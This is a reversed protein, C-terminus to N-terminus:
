KKTNSEAAREVGTGDFVPIFSQDSSEKQQIYGDEIGLAEMYAEAEEYEEDTIRRNIEPFEEARGHPTYQRMLSFLVDGKRFTEAVYELVGKTNKMQGPLILHRILVGKKLIGDAGIEYPGTQRFMQEIAPMAKEFYDPASSYREAAAADSYKLDPLWCQIKKRLFAVTHISEYGGCNYVIPIDLGKVADLAKIIHPVYHTPTVLNINNAGKDQLELFIEALRDSTIEFGKHESSIERNQCYVCGLNCGSFFVTGSGSEGSICPEEWMHLAARAVYLKDSQGCVGVTRSRDVGCNRPCLRCERYYNM